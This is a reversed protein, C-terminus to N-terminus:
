DYFKDNEVTYIRLNITFSNLDDSDKQSSYSLSEVVPYMPLSELERLLGIINVQRGKVSLSITHPVLVRTSLPYNKGRYRDFRVSSLSFGNRAVVSEINGLLLSFNGDAPYVLRINEFKQQNPTYEKDLESLTNIKKELLDNVRSKEKIGQNIRTITTITPRIAFVILIIVVIISFGFFMYSRKKEPSEKIIKIYEATNIKKEKM